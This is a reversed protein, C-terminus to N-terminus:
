NLQVFSEDDIKYINKLEVDSKLRFSAYAFDEYNYQYLTENFNIPLREFSVFQPIEPLTSFDFLDSNENIEKAEKVTINNKQFVTSISFSSNSKEFKEWEYEEVENKDWWLSYDNKGLYPLYVAEQNKINDYLQKQNDDELDLLLYIKYSPKILTQENILHTAGFEKFGKIKEGQNAFGTTNTYDIVTKQFNGKEDDIPKVGVPIDKLKNYYGPLKGNEQYGELGIIAGLIGLIAPKHLMNYTLYIGDNIDPKKLFGKEAKITFSILKKM